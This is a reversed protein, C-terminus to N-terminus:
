GGADMEEGEGPGKDDDAAQVYALQLNSAVQGFDRVVQEPLAGELVPVLARIADIALRAQPLDRSSPELKAYALQALTSLESLLFDKIELKKVLEALEEPSVERPQESAPPSEGVPREGGPTWISSGEAV